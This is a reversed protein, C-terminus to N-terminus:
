FINRNSCSVWQRRARRVERVQESLDSDWWRKSRGCLRVRKLYRRRFDVLREYASDGTLGEYWGGEEDAVTVAVVDWDVAERYDVLGELVDVRVVGTIASHDSLGWETELAGLRAGGGEVAFDIRSAVLEGGRSLEFTNGEGKGLRVGREQMWSRLVRGSPSGKGDLSWAPHHANWDRLLVWRGVGVVERIGELWREMDHVREGCRGYVGGVRVGGIEVCVFRHACEVLRCVGVLSRLVFCAVRHAASVSGLRGFDPHSQTGRGGKREVWCEGM